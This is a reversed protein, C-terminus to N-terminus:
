DRLEDVLRVEGGEIVVLGNSRLRSLYTSFTGSNATLGAAEALEPKSLPRHVSLIELMRAPGSGLKSGWDSRLEAPSRQALSCGNGYEAIAFETAGWLGGWREVLRANVLRSKYTAWTGGTRKLGALTAWQAETFRAPARSALVQVMRLAGGGLAVGDGADSSRKSRVPQPGRETVAVGRLPAAQVSGGVSVSHSRNRLLGAVAELREGLTKGVGTVAGVSERLVTAAQVLAADLVRREQESLVPVEKTEVKVAAQATKLARQLEAVQRRLAAPDNQEAAALSEALRAKLGELDIEALARPARVAAGRKPTASSNFTTRPRVAVREFIHLMGPSWFWATGIPLAKLGALFEAQRDDSDNSEIWALLASRDHPSTHRHTILLEIQTLVDKNVSAARQSILVVGIGAARGRRVLDEIAGVLRGEAGEVRQPVFLDCEDIVICLPTRHAAEGKRHFVQEALALVFRKQAAKRLHRLSLVASASHEILFDALAAGDGEALPLDGHPGGLVPIPHAASKGDASSKLGWWVDTPDIVVVPQGAALLGETLVAATHTKGSGRIGLVATTVSAVDLPLRFVASGARGIEIQQTRSM